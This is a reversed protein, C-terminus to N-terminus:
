IAESCDPRSDALVTEQAEEKEMHAVSPNDERSFVRSYVGMLRRATEDWSFERARDLGAGRMRMGLSPNALIALMAEAIGRTDRPDVFIAADGAIERASGINSTVVPTGCAMAEVIPLGFGEAFSPFALLSAANYLAVLDERPVALLVTVRPDRLAEESVAALAERSSGVLVLGYEPSRAALIEYAAMLGPVNKRSDKSLFGLVFRGGPLDYGKLAESAEGSDMVRFSADIGNHLATIKDARVGLIRRIDQASSESVTVISTARSAALPIVERWYKDVMRARRGVLRTSNAGPLCPIVDHITVILPCRVLLPATNCLCHLLDVRDRAVAIPMAVQERVPLTGQVVRVRFNENDVFREAGPRDTYLMYENTKDVRALASVLSHTYTKFGGEQPHTLHRADLGVRM